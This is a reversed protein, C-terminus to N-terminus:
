PFPPTVAATSARAAARKGSALRGSAAHDVLGAYHLVIAVISRPNTFRKRMLWDAIRDILVGDIGASPSAADPGARGSGRDAAAAGPGADAPLTTDRSM